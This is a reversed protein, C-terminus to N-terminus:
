GRRRRAQGPKPARTPEVPGVLGPPPSGEATFDAKQDALVPASPAPTAPKVPTKTKNMGALTATTPRRTQAAASGAPLPGLHSALCVVRRACGLM